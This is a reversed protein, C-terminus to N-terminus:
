AGATTRCGQFLEILEAISGHTQPLMQWRNILIHCCRNLVFKFEQEAQKSAALQEVAKAVEPERYGWSDIFLNRFREILQAPSEQEVWYLLYNYVVQEEYSNPRHSHDTLNDM